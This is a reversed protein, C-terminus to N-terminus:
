SLARLGAKKEEPPRRFVRQDKRTARGVTRAHQRAHVRVFLPVRDDGVFLHHLRAGRRETCADAQGAGRQGAIGLAGLGDVGHPVAIDELEERGGGRVVAEGLGTDEGV